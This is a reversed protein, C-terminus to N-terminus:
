SVFRHVLIGVIAASAGLLTWLIGKRIKRKEEVIKIEVDKFKDRNVGLMKAYLLREKEHQEMIKAELETLEIQLTKMEEPEVKLADQFYLYAKRYDRKYIKFIKGTICMYIYIFLVYM